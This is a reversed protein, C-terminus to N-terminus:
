MPKLNAQADALLSREAEAKGHARMLVCAFSGRKHFVFFSIQPLRGQWVWVEFAFAQKFALVPHPKLKQRGKLAAPDGPRECTWRAM